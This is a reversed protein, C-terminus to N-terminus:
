PSGDRLLQRRHHLRQGRQLRNASARVAYWIQILRDSVSVVEWHEPIMGDVSSVAQAAQAILEQAEQISDLARQVRPEAATKRDRKSSM